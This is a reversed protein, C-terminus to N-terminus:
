FSRLRDIQRKVEALADDESLGSVIFCHGRHIPLDPWKPRAWVRWRHGDPVIRINYGRYVTDLAFSLPRAWKKGQGGCGDPAAFAAHDM